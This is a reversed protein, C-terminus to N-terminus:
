LLQEAYAVVSTFTRTPLKPVIFRSRQSLQSDFNESALDPSCHEIRDDDLSISLLCLPCSFGRVFSSLLMPWVKGSQLIQASTIQSHCVSFCIYRVFLETWYRPDKHNMGCRIPGM